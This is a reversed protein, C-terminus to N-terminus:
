PALVSQTLFVAIDQRIQAAVAAPRSLFPNHGADFRTTKTTHESMSQQISPPLARDQECLIYSTPVSKWIADRLPHAASDLSQHTLRGSHEAAREPPLDHYFVEEPHLADMYGESPHVDWWDPLGHEGALDAVSQGVDLVWAAIYVVGIVNDLGCLAQTTPLGGYSHAVVVVPETISRVMSRIADVDDDFSGLKAPDHGSSPLEVADVTHDTMEARLDDWVWAGHWAGHVLVVTPNKQDHTM